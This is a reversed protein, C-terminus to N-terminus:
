THIKDCKDNIKRFDTLFRWGGCKKKSLLIPASFSSKSPQVLGDAIMEFSQNDIYERMEPRTRYPPVAIPPENRDKIHARYQILDTKGYDRDHRSFAKAHDIELM